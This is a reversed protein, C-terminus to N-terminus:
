LSQLTEIVKKTVEDIASTSLNQTAKKLFRGKIGEPVGRGFLWAPTGREADRLKLFIEQKLPGFYQGNITNWWSSDVCDHNEEALNLCLDAAAQSPFLFELTFFAQEDQIQHNALFEKFDDSFPLCWAAQRSG